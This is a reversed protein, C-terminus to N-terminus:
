HVLQFQNLCQCILCTQTYCGIRAIPLLRSLTKKTNREKMLVFEDCVFVDCMRYSHLRTRDICICPCQGHTQYIIDSMTLQAHSTRNYQTYSTSYTYRSKELHIYLQIHRTVQLKHSSYNIRRNNDEGFLSKNNKKSESM